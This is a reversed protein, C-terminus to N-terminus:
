HELSEYEFALQMELTKANFVSDKLLVKEVFPINELIVSDRWESNEWVRSKILVSDSKFYYFIETLKYKGTNEFSWDSKITKVAFINDSKLLLSLKKVM